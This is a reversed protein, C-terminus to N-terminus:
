TSTTLLRRARGVALKAFHTATAFEEQVRAFGTPQLVQLRARHFEVVSRRWQTTSLGGTHFKAITFSLELPDALQSLRLAVAYDAAIQFTTDFGGLDVLAYRKVITGQHPPFRGRAFLADKERRYDFPAPTTENGVADIFCVQGYMWIPDSQRLHHVMTTLSSPSAFEDGSNLFMVHHGTAEALGVNMAPYVGTPPSWICRPSWESRDLMEPVLGRDRSGDVVLWEVDDQASSQPTGLSALTRQLGIGDDKVVTVVSLLPAM